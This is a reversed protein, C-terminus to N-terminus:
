EVSIRGAHSIQVERENGKASRLTVHVQDPDVSPPSTTIVGRLHPRRFTVDASDVSECDDDNIEMVCIGSVMINNAIRVTKITADTGDFTENNNLDVFVYYTSSNEEFHLGYTREFADESATDGYPSTSIGLIQAERVSLAVEYATNRLLTQSDYDRYTALVGVSIIGVISIVILLEILTFGSIRTQPFFKM